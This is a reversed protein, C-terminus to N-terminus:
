LLWLFSIYQALHKWCFQIDISFLYEFTMPLAKSWIDSPEWQTVWLGPAPMLTYGLNCHGRLEPLPSQLFHLRAATFILSMVVSPSFSFPSQQFSMGNPSFLCFICCNIDVCPHYEFYKVVLPQPYWLNSYSNVLEPFITHLYHHM